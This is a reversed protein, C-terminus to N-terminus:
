IGRMRNKIEMYRSGLDNYRNRIDEWAVIPIVKISDVTVGLIEEVKNIRQLMITNRRILEEWLYDDPFDKIAEVMEEESLAKTITRLEKKEANNM